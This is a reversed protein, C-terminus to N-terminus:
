SLFTNEDEFAVGTARPAALPQFRSFLFTVPLLSFTPNASLALFFLLGTCSLPLLQYWLFSLQPLLFTVQTGVQM